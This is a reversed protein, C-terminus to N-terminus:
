YPQYDRPRLHPRSALLQGTLQLLRDDRYHLDSRRCGHIVISQVIPDERTVQASLKDYKTLMELVQANIQQFQTDAALLKVSLASACSQQRAHLDLHHELLSTVHLALLESSSTLM